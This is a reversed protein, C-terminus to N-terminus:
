KKLEEVFELVVTKVKNEFDPVNKQWFAFWVASDEVTEVMQAFETAAAESLYKAMEVGLRRELAAEFQPLMNNQEEQSLKDFGKEVLANKLLNTFISNEM